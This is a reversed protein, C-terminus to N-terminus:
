IFGHTRNQPQLSVTTLCLLVNRLYADCVPQPCWGQGHSQADEPWRSLRESDRSNGPLLEVTLVTSAELVVGLGVWREEIPRKLTKGIKACPVWMKTKDPDRTHLRGSQSARRCPTCCLAAGGSGSPEGPWRDLAGSMGASSGQCRGAALVPCGRSPIASGPSTAAEAM